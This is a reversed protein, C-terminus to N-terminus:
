FGCLVEAPILIRAWLQAICRTRDSFTNQLIKVPMDVWFVKGKTRHEDCLLLARGEKVVKTNIMWYVYYLFSCPWVLFIVTALASKLPTGYVISTACATCIGQQFLLLLYHFIRRDYIQLM